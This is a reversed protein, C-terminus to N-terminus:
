ASRREYTRRIVEKLTEFKIPKTAFDDMGSEFCVEKTERLANATLAIIPTYTSRAAEIKRIAKTAEYGNLVPMQCDMFILDFKAKQEILDVAQQGDSVVDVEYDLKKLMTTVVVQNVKNDEVVLVKSKALASTLHNNQHRLGEEHVDLHASSSVVSILRGLTIPLSLFHTNKLNLDLQVQNLSELDQPPTIFITYSKEAMKEILAKHKQWYKFEILFIDDENFECKESAQLSKIKNEDHICSLYSQLVNSLSESEVLTWITKNKISQIKQSEVLPDALKKLPLCITFESGKAEESKVSINGGMAIIISKSITLGLGSGGYRRSDSADVQTFSGFISDLKNEPIGVGSDIVQIQISDQQIVKAIVSVYGTPTFKVANGILNVLVQKLRTEDGSYSGAIQSDIYINFDLGRAFVVTSLSEVVTDIAERLNFPKNEIELKGSEIKSFELIDSILSLLFEGSKYIVEFQEKQTSTMHSMKLIDLMGIMGNLPTRLEHSMNALFEGKAKNLRKLEEQKEGIELKMYDIYIYCSLNGDNHVLQNKEIEYSSLLVRGEIAKPPTISLEPFIKKLQVLTNGAAINIIEMFSDLVAQRNKWYSQQENETESGLGLMKIATQKKLGILFEGYVQGTFLISFYLDEQEELGVNSNAEVRQDVKIDLLSQLAKQISYSYISCAEKLDVNITSNKM